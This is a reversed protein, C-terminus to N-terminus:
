SEGTDSQIAGATSERPVVHFRAKSFRATLLPLGPEGLVLLATSLADADAASGCVVFALATNTSPRGTRPDMVHGKQEGDADRVTRGHPASVGLSNDRLTVRSVPHDDGDPGTVAVNWEGIATVSSTGGHLLARKVGVERLIDAASDLAWGKGFAGLDLAMGQRDFRVTQEETDLMVGRWGTNQRAIEVSLTTNRFGWAAMLPGITMDFAGDTLKSLEFARKLLDFVRPDVSVPGLASRANVRAIDSDPLFPSLRREQRAIEELAEEGAARLGPESDGELVVEFRTAMAQRALAVCAPM